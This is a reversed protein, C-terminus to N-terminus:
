IGFRHSRFSDCVTLPVRIEEESGLIRVPYLVTLTIKLFMQGEDESIRLNQVTCRVSGNEDYRVVTEGIREGLSDLLKEKLSDLSEGASEKEGDQLSPYIEVSRESLFSDTVRLVTDRIGNIETLASVYLFLFAFVTLLCLVVPVTTWLASGRKERFTKKLFLLKM